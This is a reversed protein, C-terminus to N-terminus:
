RETKTFKVNELMLRPRQETSRFASNIEVVPSLCENQNRRIKAAKTEERRAKDTTLETEIGFSNFRQFAKCCSGNLDCNVLVLSRWTIEIVSIQLYNGYETPLFHLTGYELSFDPCLGQSNNEPRKSTNRLAM